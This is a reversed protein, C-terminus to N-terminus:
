RMGDLVCVAEFLHKIYSKLCANETYQEPELTLYGDFGAATLAPIVRDWAVTGLAPTLHDDRKKYNNHVHTGKIRSGVAAIAEAQDRPMLNAHGTDWLGCVARSSLADILANQEDTYCSYFTLDPVDPFNPINEIGIKVGDREAEKVFPAFNRLNDTFSKERDMGGTFHTRPHFAVIEGGLMATARVARMQARDLSEDAIEASIRLDYYPSHTMVCQLGYRDLLTKAKEVTKEWDDGVLSATKASFGWNVYRFGAEAAYAAVKEPCCQEFVSIAIKRDKM